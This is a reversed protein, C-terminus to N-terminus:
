SAQRRRPLRPRLVRLLLSCPGVLACWVGGLCLMLAVSEWVSIPAPGFPTAQELRHSVHAFYICGGVIGFFVGWLRRHGNTM